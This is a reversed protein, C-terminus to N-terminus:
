QDSADRTVIFGTWMLAGLGLGVGAGIGLAALPRDHLLTRFEEYRAEAQNSAVALMHRAQKATRFNAKRVRRVTGKVLSKARRHDKRATVVLATQATRAALKVDEVLDVTM